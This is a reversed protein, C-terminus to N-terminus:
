RELTLTLVTEVADRPAGLLQEEQDDPFDYMAGAGALTLRDQDLEFSFALVRGMSDWRGIVKEISQFLPLSDNAADLDMALRGDDLVSLRGGIPVPAPEGTLTDVALGPLRVHGTFRGSEEIALTLAGDAGTIASFVLGAPGTEEYEFATANWFGALTAVDLGTSGDCAAAALACMLLGM